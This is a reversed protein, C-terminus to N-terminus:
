PNAIIIYLRYQCIYQYTPGDGHSNIENLSRQKVAVMDIWSFYVFYSISMERVNNPKTCGMTYMLIGNRNPDGGGGRGSHM